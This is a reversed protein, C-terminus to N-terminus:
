GVWVRLGDNRARAVCDLAALFIQIAEREECHGSAFFRPFMKM